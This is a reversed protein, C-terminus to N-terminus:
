KGNMSKAFWDDYIEQIAQKNYYDDIFEDIFDGNIKTLVVFSFSEIFENPIQLKEVGLIEALVSEVDTKFDDTNYGIGNNSIDTENVVGSCRCSFCEYEPIYVIGSPTGWQDIDKYYIKRSDEDLEPHYEAVYYVFKGKTCDREM